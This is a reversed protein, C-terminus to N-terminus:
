ATEKARFCSFDNYMEDSICLRVGAHEGRKGFVQHPHWQECDECPPRPVDLVPAPKNHTNWPEFKM